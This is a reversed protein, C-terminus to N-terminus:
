MKGGSGLRRILRFEGLREPLGREGDVSALGARALRASQPVVAVTALSQFVYFGAPWRQVVTAALWILSLAAMYWAHQGIQQDFVRVSWPLAFVSSVLASQTLPVVFQRWRPSPAALSPFSERDTDRYSRLQLVTPRGSGQPILSVYCADTKHPYGNTLEISGALNLQKQVQDTTTEMKEQVAQKAKAANETVANKAKDLAGTLDEKSCGVAIVALVFITARWYHVQWM